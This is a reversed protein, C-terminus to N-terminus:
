TFEFPAMKVDSITLEIDFRAQLREVFTTLVM